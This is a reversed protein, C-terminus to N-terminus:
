IASQLRSGCPERTAGASGSGANALISEYQRMIQRLGVTALVVANGNAGPPAGLALCECLTRALAEPELSPAVWAAPLRDLIEGVGGPCRTAVVPTNLAAAELLANPLGEYRSSLVFADARRYYPFPNRNFGMFRVAGGVGLSSAIQRLEGELSGTGFITLDAAPFSSRVRAFAPLLRDYGKVLELRGAAVLHPGPGEFRPPELQAMRNIRCEDVPNYVRILRDRPIGFGVALEDLTSDSQCIVTDARSYLLGYMWRRFRASESAVAKGTTNHRVVVRTGAPFAFRASLVAVNLHAMVALVVDPRLKRVLRVIAPVCERVRQCGMGHVPVDAPIDEMLPGEPQLLGLHPEFGNRDMRRLLTLMVQETGGERMSPILALLRTRAGQNM